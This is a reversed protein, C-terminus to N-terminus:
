LDGGIPRLVIEETMMRQPDDLIHAIANAIDEPQMMRARLERVEDISWSDTEVAGPMVSIVKIGKSRVEERLANTFGLAGFKSAGYATGGSFAKTSAISLMQVITGKGKRIMEPLVAKACLFNGVLNTEIVSDFMETTMEEIDAYPSIGANNLLIDPGEGFTHVISKIAWEIDKEKTLDCQLATAHGGAERIGEVLERLIEVRRASAVVLMGKAALRHTCARGIGSSAGTIWVIPQEM